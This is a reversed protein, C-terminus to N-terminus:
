IDKTSQLMQAIYAKAEQGAKDNDMCILISPASILKSFWRPNIRKNVASGISATSIKEEAVQKIILADFEGETIM